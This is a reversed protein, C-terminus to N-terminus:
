VTNCRCLIWVKILSSKPKKGDKAGEAKADGDNEDDRDLLTPSGADSKKALEDDDQKYYFQDLEIGGHDGEEESLLLTM